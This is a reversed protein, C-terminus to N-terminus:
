DWILNNIKWKQKNIEVFVEIHVNPNFVSSIQFEVEGVQFHEDFVVYFLLSCNYTVDVSM